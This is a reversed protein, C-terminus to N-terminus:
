TKSAPGALLAQAFFKVTKRVAVKSSESGRRSHRRTKRKQEQAGSSKKRESRARSALADGIAEKGKPPEVKRKDEGRDALKVAHSRVAKELSADIGSGGSDSGVDSDFVMPMSDAPKAKRREKPGLPEIAEKPKKRPPEEDVEKSNKKAAKKPKETESESASAVAEMRSSTSPAQKSDLARELDGASEHRGRLYSALKREPPLSSGTWEGRPTFPGTLVRAAKLLRKALGKLEFGRSTMDLEALGLARWTVMHV